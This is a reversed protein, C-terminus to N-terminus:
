LHKMGHNAPGKCHLHLGWYRQYEYCIIGGSYVKKLGLHPALEIRLLDFNHPPSMIQGNLPTPPHYFSFFDINLSPSHLFLALTFFIYKLYPYRSFFSFIFPILLIFFDVEVLPTMKTPWYFAHIFWNYIMMPWEWLFTIRTIYGAVIGPFVFIFLSNLIANFFPAILYIKQHFFYAIFINAGLIAFPLYIPPSESMALVTGLFLFSLTFSLPNYRYTGWLFDLFFSILFLAFINKEKAYFTLFLIFLRLIAMRKLPYLEPLFFLSASLLINIIILIKKHKFLRNLIFNFALLISTLHMGSPTFLHQLGLARHIMLDEKQVGGMFGTLYSYGLGGLNPHHFSKKLRHWDKKLNQNLQSNKKLPTTKNISLIFLGISLIFVLSLKNM